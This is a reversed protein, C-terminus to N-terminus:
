DKSRDRRRRLRLMHGVRLNGGMEFRSRNRLVPTNGSSSLSERMVIYLGSAIVVSAGILTERDISEDFFAYGFIAAWIIQSYQMPAVMVAEGARYAAILCLTASFGLMAVGFQLGLDVVPLPVYVFPLIGGMLVFTAVMPYLMLVASREDKGIRRMIVSAISGTLAATLGALHGLGLSVGSPRLVIIVGCLGVLVALGRHIGVKEGLIPISLLTILLPMAFLIAYAQALPLVSFAYFASVGTIVAACTRLVTWWPHVPILTGPTADRMLLLTVLPFGFLVNFFAIQFPSYSAGLIKILVDHTAFIAFAGLAFLMARGNSKAQTM